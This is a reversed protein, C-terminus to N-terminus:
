ASGAPVTDPLGALDCIPRRGAVGDNPYHWYQVDPEDLQWCYFIEKGGVRAPFDVLGRAFDRFKVGVEDLEGLYGQLKHAVEGSAAKLRDLEDWAGTRQRLELMEQLELLRGYRSVIDSVIRRVLVLSRNAQRLSFTRDLPRRSSGAPAKSVSHDM